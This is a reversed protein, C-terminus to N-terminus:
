FRSLGGRDIITDIKENVLVKKGTELSIESLFYYGDENVSSSVVVIPKLYKEEELEVKGVLLNEMAGYIIEYNSDTSSFGMIIKEIKDKSLISNIPIIRTIDSNYFYFPKSESLLEDSTAYHDDSSYKFRDFMSVSAWDYKWRYLINVYKDNADNEFIEIKEVFFHEDFYVDSVNNIKKYVEKWLSLSYEFDKDFNITPLSANTKFSIPVKYGNFMVYGKKLVVPTNKNGLFLHSSITNPVYKIKISKNSNNFFLFASVLILVSFLIIIYKKM